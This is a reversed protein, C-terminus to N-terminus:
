FLSRCFLASLLAVSLLAVSMLAASMLAINVVVCVLCQVKSAENKAPEPAHNHESIVACCLKQKRFDTPHIKHIKPQQDRFHGQFNGIVYLNKIYGMKPIKM